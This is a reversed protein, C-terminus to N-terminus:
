PFNKKRGSVTHINLNISLGVVFIKEKEQKEKVEESGRVKLQKQDNQIKKPSIRLKKQFHEHEKLTLQQHAVSRIQNKKKESRWSLTTGGITYTIHVSM